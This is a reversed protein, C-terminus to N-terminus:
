PVYRRVLNPSRARRRMSAYPVLSLEDKIEAPTVDSRKKSTFVSQRFYEEIRQRYKQTGRYEEDGQIVSQDSRSYLPNRVQDGRECVGRTGQAQIDEM